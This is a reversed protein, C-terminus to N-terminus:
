YMSVGVYEDTKTITVTFGDEAWLASEEEKQNPEGYKATLDEVVKAYEGSKAGYIYYCACYMQNKSNFFYVIKTEGPPTILDAFKGNQYVLRDPSSKTEYKSGMMAIVNAKDMGLTLDKFNVKRACGTLFSFTLALLVGLALFRLTKKMFNEETESFYVQIDYDM